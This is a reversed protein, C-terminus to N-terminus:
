RMPQYNKLLYVLVKKAPQGSRMITLTDAPSIVKFLQQFREQPNQFHDSATIFYADSGPLLQKRYRNLWAYTHIDITDGLALFNLNLPRAIYHDIHAAPFWKNSIVHDTATQNHKRNHQYLSDFQSAAQKWGFMDLTADNDGLLPKDKEGMTGPYVNVILIGALVVVTTLVCASLAIRFRHKVVFNVPASVHGIQIASFLLLATYAPGSWHPLTDRFASVAFLTGILPLSQWLLLLRLSNNQMQERGFFRVLAYVIIAYNIPNSYLMGGVLERLFSDFQWGNNAVVRSSHFQWTVYNNQMNWLVIPSIILATILIALYLYSARLLQRKHLLIFAGFGFWLFAGHVKSMICFGSAVGFLLL